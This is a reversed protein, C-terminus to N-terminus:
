SPTNLKKVGKRYGGWVFLFFFTSSLLVSNAVVSHGRPNLKTTSWHIHKKTLKDFLFSDVDKTSLSLGFSAGLLKNVGEEDVWTIGLM